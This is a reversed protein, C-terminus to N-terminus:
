KKKEEKKRVSKQITKQKACGIRSRCEPCFSSKERESTPEWKKGCMTCHKM